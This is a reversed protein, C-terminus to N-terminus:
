ARGNLHFQSSAADSGGEESARNGNAAGGGFITNGYDVSIRLLRNLYWNVGGVWERARRLLITDPLPESGQGVSSCNNVQLNAGIKFVFNGHNSKIKFGSIDASM